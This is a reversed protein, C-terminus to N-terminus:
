EIIKTLCSWHSGYGNELAWSLIYRQDEENYIDGAYNAERCMWNWTEKKFQAIGIEGEKGIANQNGNSECEIIAESLAAYTRPKIYYPVNPAEITNGQILVYGSPESLEELPSEAGFAIGVIFGIGFAVFFLILIQIILWIQSRNM